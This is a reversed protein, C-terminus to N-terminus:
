FQMMYALFFLLFVVDIPQLLRTTQFLAQVGNDYGTTDDSGLHCLSFTAGIGNEWHITGM